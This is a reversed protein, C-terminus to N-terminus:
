EKLGLVVNDVVLTKVLAVARSREPKSVGTRLENDVGEVSKEGDGANKDRGVVKSTSDSTDLLFAVLKRNM